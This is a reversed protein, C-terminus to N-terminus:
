KLQKLINQADRKLRQDAKENDVISQLADKIKQDAKKERRLRDVLARGAEKTVGDDAVYSALLLSAKRDRCRAATSVPLRKEEVRKVLPIAKSLAEVQKGGHREKAVVQLYGRLALIGSTEDAPKSALELLM